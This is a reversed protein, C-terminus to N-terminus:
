VLFTGTSGINRTANMTSTATFLKPQIPSFVTAVKLVIDRQHRSQATDANPIRVEIPESATTPGRGNIAITNCVTRSAAKTMAPNNIRTQLCSRKRDIKELMADVIKQQVQEGSVENIQRIASPSTINVETLYGDIFDAGALFIGHDLLFPAITRIIHSERASLQAAECRAGQHINALYSGRLPVRNVMGVPEGNVLYIRKDGGSVQPLYKQALLFRSGGNSNTLAAEIRARFDGREDWEIKSIGRGSCDNLPKLVVTRHEITFRELQEVNMTILTPPTYEPWRLPLMKENFDRLAKVDNFQAVGPDLHDLILTLQLYNTNFPPDKRVLVADFSSLNRWRPEALVLPDTGTVRSVRGMPQDHALAVDEQQLWYAGQGREILEQMLLLSTETELNLTELPDMVFLFNTCTNM